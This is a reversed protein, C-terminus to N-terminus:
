NLTEITKGIFQKLEKEAAVVESLTPDLRESKRSFYDLCNVKKAIDRVASKPILDSVETYFDLGFPYILAYQKQEIFVKVKREQKYVRIKTIKLDM